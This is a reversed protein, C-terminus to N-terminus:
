RIRIDTLACQDGTLAVYVEEFDEVIETNNEIRIGLNETITIIHNGKKELFVECEMGDKNTDNWVEWGPFDDKKKMSFRNTAFNFQM